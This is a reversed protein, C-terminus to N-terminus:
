TSDDMVQEEPEYIASEYIKQAVLEPTDIVYNRNSGPRWQNRIEKNGLANKGFDTFTARPYFTIVRINDQALEVRATESLKSFAAKTAAYTGLGPIQMHAVGSSINIIIGGGSAKMLPVVAQIAYLPGFVNLDLISRFLDLDIDAITGIASQGANNILIDIQGKWANAKEILNNVADRDRMDTVVVLSKVGNEALENSLAELKDESRAVLVLEAGHAAFVRAACLGIGASAGTIVVVKREIEMICEKWSM